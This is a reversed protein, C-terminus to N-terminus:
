PESMEVGEGDRVVKTAECAADLVFRRAGKMEDAATDVVSGDVDGGGAGVERTRTGVRGKDVNGEQVVEDGVGKVRGGTVDVPEADSEGEGEQVVDEDVAM